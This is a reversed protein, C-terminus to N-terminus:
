YSFGMWASAGWAHIAQVEMGCVMRASRRWPQGLPASILEGGAVLGVPYGRTLTIEVDDTNVDLQHQEMLVLSPGLWGVAGGEPEGFAALAAGSVGYWRSESRPDQNPGGSEVRSWGAEGKVSLAPSVGERPWQLALGAAGTPGWGVHGTGSLDEQNWAGGVWAGVAAHPRVDVRLEGGAGKAWSQCRDGDCGTELTRGVWGGGAQLSV